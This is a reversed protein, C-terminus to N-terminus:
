PLISAVKAATDRNATASEALGLGTEEATDSAVALVDSLDFAETALADQAEAAKELIAAGSKLAARAVRASTEVAAVQGNFDDSKNLWGAFKSIISM